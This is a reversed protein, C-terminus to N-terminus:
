CGIYVTVGIFFASYIPHSLIALIHMIQILYAHIIHLLQAQHGDMWQVCHNWCITDCPLLTPVLVSFVRGACLMM